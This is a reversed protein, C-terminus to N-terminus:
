GQCMWLFNCTFTVSAGDASRTAEVSWLNDSSSWSCRTIRHGYRIHKDIGNDEIVEGMYKLIEDASAVPTGVWPKFRYGFTYLDSDSRVGPYKHTEWTGGFTDKMELIVYRKGPCQEQLHYASGIGSIGAGVILVDVHTAADAKPKKLTNPM